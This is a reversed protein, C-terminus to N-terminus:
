GRAREYTTRSQLIDSYAKDITVTDPLGIQYGRDYDRKTYLWQLPQEIVLLSPNTDNYLTKMVINHLDLDVRNRRLGPYLDGEQILLAVM